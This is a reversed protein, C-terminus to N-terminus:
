GLGTQYFVTVLSVKFSNVLHMQSHAIDNSFSTFGRAPACAMVSFGLRNNRQAWLCVEYMRTERGGQAPTAM